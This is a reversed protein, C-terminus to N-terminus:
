SAFAGGEETWTGTTLDYDMTLSTVGERPNVDITDNGFRLGSDSDFIAISVPITPNRPDVYDTFSWNPFIHAGEIADDENDRAPNNGIKVVAFYDGDGDPFGDPNDIQVFEPITVTVPISQVINFFIKADGDAEGNGQTFNQPSTFAGNQEAWMGTFADYDLTVSTANKLPNIDVTDDGAALGGDQDFVSIQIPVIGNAPDVTDTFTWNPFIHNGDVTNAETSHEANNGIKVKVYYDGDGTAVGDDPNRLQILEPITLTISIPAPLTRDELVEVTPLRGRRKTPRPRRVPRTPPFRNLWKRWWSPFM